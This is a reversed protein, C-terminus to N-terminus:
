RGASQLSVSPCDVQWLARHPFALDLEVHDIL